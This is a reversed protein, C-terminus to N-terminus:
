REHRPYARGQPYRDADPRRTTVSPRDGCRGLRKRTAVEATGRQSRRHRNGREGRVGAVRVATTTNRPEANATTASAHIRPTAVFGAARVAPGRADANTFPENPLAGSTIM